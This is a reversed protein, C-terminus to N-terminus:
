LKANKEPTRSLADAVPDLHKSQFPVASCSSNPVSGSNQEVACYLRRPHRPARASELCKVSSGISSNSEESMGGKTEVPAGPGPGVRIVHIFRFRFRFREM